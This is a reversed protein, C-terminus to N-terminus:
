GLREALLGDVRLKVRNAASYRSHPLLRQRLGSIHRGVMPSQLQSYHDLLHNATACAADLQGSDLLVKTLHALTLARSRRAARPRHTLSARLARVASAFDGIAHLVQGRQYHLSALSYSDFPTDGCDQADHLEEATGLANLAPRVAGTAAHTVAVQTLLFTRTSPAVDPPATDLAAQALDARPHGLQQSHASAGRMVIAYMTRDGAEAALRAAIGFYHQSAGHFECDICMKALLFTLQANSTLLQRRTREDSDAVLYASADNALYSALATRAHAGGFSDISSAYFDTMHRLAELEGRGVRWNTTSHAKHTRARAEHWHPPMNALRFPTGHFAARRRPDADLAAATALASHLGQQSPALPLEGEGTLDSLGTDHVPVTRGLRRTLIESVLAPVPAPPRSGTLWRAVTKRSYHLGLGNESGARNVARALAEGTLEAEALLERLLHNPQPDKM